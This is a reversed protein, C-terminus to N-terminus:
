EQRATQELRDKLLRLAERAAPLRVPYLLVLFMFWQAITLNFRVTRKLRTGGNHAQFTFLHEFKGTSDEGAFGFRSPPQYETVQFEAHIHVGNFEASSRYRSGVAIPGASVVEVQLPNGAWEGHKSLDAVYAFVAEPSANIDISVSFAATPM